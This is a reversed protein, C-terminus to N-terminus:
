FMIKASCIYTLIFFIINIFAILPTLLCVHLPYNYLSKDLDLSNLTNYKRIIYTLNLLAQRSFSKPHSIIVLLSHRRFHYQMIYKFFINSTCDLTLFTKSFLLRRPLSSWFPVSKEQIGRGDGFIRDKTLRLLLKTALRYVPNNQYTSLPIEVFSGNHDPIKVDNEFPYYPLNPADSFDYDYINGGTLLMGPVVSFDYKIEFTEFASKIHTFPEISFGGARFCRVKQSTISELLDISKGFLNLIDEQSLSHLRYKEFSSFRINDGIKYADIWQPHLHLEVTSGTKIIDKLQEAVLQLDDQFNEKLFLLWTADVFFIAKANNQELIKLLQQTPKLVCNDITGTQEGLFVEYDFTLIVNKKM